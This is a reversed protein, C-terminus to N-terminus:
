ASPPQRHGARGLAAPPARLAAVSRGIVGCADGAGQGRAARAGRCCQRSCGGSRLDRRIQKAPEGSLAYSETIQAPRRSRARPARFTPAAAPPAARRPQGKPHAHRVRGRGGLAVQLAGHRGRTLSTGHASSGSM